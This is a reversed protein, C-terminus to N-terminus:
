SQRKKLIQLKEKQLDITHSLQDNNKKLVAIEQELDRIQKDKAELMGKLPERDKYHALLNTGLGKSFKILLEIDKPPTEFYKYLLSESINLKKAAEKRRVGLNKVATYILLGMGTYEKRKPM